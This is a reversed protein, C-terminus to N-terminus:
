TVWRRSVDNLMGYCFALDPDAPLKTVAKAKQWMRLQMAPWLVCFATPKKRPMRDYLSPVRQLGGARVLPLVESPNALVEGLKGM